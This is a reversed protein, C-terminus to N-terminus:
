GMDQETGWLSGSSFPQSLPPHLACFGWDLLEFSVRPAAPRRAQDGETNLGGLQSKAPEWCECLAPSPVNQLM